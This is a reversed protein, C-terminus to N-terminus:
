CILLSFFTCVKCIIYGVPFGPLLNDKNLEGLATMSNKLEGMTKVDEPWKSWTIDPNVHHFAKSQKFFQPQFWGGRDVTVMTARLGFEVNYSSAASTSKFMASSVSSSSEGSAFWLSGSARSSSARAEDMQTSSKKDFNHYMKIEQWRSGGSTVDKPFLQISALPAPTPTSDTPPVASTDTPKKLARVRATLEEVDKNISTIQLQIEQQQQQTDTASALAKAALAQTFVRSASTLAQQAGAVKEMGTELTTLATDAIGLKGAVTGLATKDLKGFKDITTKAMAVVNTSYVRALDSQAADLTAQAGVVKGELEKIDGRKATKLSALQSNLVDLHKSKADIQQEILTADSTLDEMTFSTSLGEFWDIPTMQVPYVRLSGDFSSMAAERLSDKADQLFEASSKIDLHGMYERITHSFGRVVADAYKSALQAERTATTHALTRNLADLAASSESSGLKLQTAKNIMTDRQTEWAQKATLYEQMLAESLELRNITHNETMKESVAFMPKPGDLQFGDVVKAIAHSATVSHTHQNNLLEQIWKAAKVDKLLWNRIKHQRELLTADHSAPILNNLVQEYVLSLNVGNPGGVVPGIDYMQDTLRFENENVSIPKIFQGYPGAASTDWAYLSKQLFRGPFQLSFIQNGSPAFFEKFSKIVVQLFDGNTPEHAASPSNTIGHLPTEHEPTSPYPRRLKALASAVAKRAKKILDNFPVNKEAAPGARFAEIYLKMIERMDKSDEKIGLDLLSQSLEGIRVTPDAPYM